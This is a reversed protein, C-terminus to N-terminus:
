SCARRRRGVRARVSGPVARARRNIVRRGDRARASGTRRAAPTMVRNTPATRRPVLRIGRPRKAGRWVVIRGWLGLNVQQTM